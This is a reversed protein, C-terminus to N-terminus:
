GGMKGEAKAPGKERERDRGVFGREKLNGKRKEREREREREKERQWFLDMRHPIGTTMDSM